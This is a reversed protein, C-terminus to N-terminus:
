SWIPVTAPRTPQTEAPAVRVVYFNHDLEQIEGVVTFGDPLQAFAGAVDAADHSSLDRRFPISVGGRAHHEGVTLTPRHYTAFEAWWTSDGNQMNVM